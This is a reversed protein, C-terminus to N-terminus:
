ECPFSVPIRMARTSSLGESRDRRLCCRVEYPSARDREKEREKKPRWKILQMNYMFALGALIIVLNLMEIM